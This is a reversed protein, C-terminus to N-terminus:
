LQFMDALQESNTEYEPRARFSDGDMTRLKRLLHTVTDLMAAQSSVRPPLPSAEEAEPRHRDPRPSPVKNGPPPAPSAGAGSSGALPAGPQGSLESVLKNLHNRLFNLVEPAGATNSRQRAKETLESMSMGPPFVSRLLQAQNMLAKHSQHMVQLTKRVSGGAIPNTPALRTPGEPVVGGTLHEQLTRYAAQAESAAQQAADEAAALREGVVKFNFPLSPVLFVPLSNAAPLSIFLVGLM